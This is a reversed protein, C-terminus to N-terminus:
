KIIKNLKRKILDGTKSKYVILLISICSGTLLYKWDENLYFSACFGVIGLITTLVNTLKDSKKNVM